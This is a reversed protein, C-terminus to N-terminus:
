SSWTEAEFRWRWRRDIIQHGDLDYSDDTYTVNTVTYIRSPEVELQAVPPSNVETIDVVQIEQTYPLSWLSLGEM